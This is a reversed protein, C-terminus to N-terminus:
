LVKGHDAPKLTSLKESIKESLSVSRFKNELATIAPLLHQCEPENCTLEEMAQSMAEWIPLIRDLLAHGAKTLQVL